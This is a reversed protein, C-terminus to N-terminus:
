QQTCTSKDEEEDDHDHNDLDIETEGEPSIKTSDQRSFYWPAAEELTWGKEDMQNELEKTANKAWCGFIMKQIFTIIVLGNTIWGIYYGPRGKVTPYNKPWNKYKGIIVNTPNGNLKESISDTTEFPVFCMSSALGFFLCFCATGLFMTVLNLKQCLPVKSWTTAAKIVRGKEEDKRDAEEVAPDNEYKLLEARKKSTTNEIFYMASFLALSQVLTAMLLSITGMGKYLNRVKDTGEQDFCMNKYGGDGINLSTCKSANLPVTYECSFPTSLEALGNCPPADCPCAENVFAGSMVCPFVLFVVPITGFLMKFVSLKLIGTLVSTPWDPGGCLIAIKDIGLGPKTLILRIAKISMSNVMVTKRVYLSGSMMGGILKQQMAVANMKIMFCIFTVIFCAPTFPVGEKVFSNVMVVGGLVYVPVGPVPPLLFMFLGVSYFIAVVAGLPLVSLQANLWSLFVMTFKTIGVNFVYYMTGIFAVKMFVDTFPWNLIARWQKHVISTLCRKKEKATVRKACPTLHVRFFQNVASLLLFAGYPIFLFMAMAKLWDSSGAKSMSALLPVKMLDGKISGWGITSIAMAALLGMGAFSFLMVLNSVQPTSGAITTAMWLGLITLGGLMGFVRIQTRPSKRKMGKAIFHTVWGFIVLMMSSVLLGIYLLYGATACDADVDNLNATYLNRYYYHDNNDCNSGVLSSKNTPQSLACDTGYLPFGPNDKMYKSIAHQFEALKSWSDISDTVNGYRSTINYYGAPFASNAEGGNNSGLTCGQGSDDSKKYDDCTFDSSGSGGDLLEWKDKRKLYFTQSWKGDDDPEWDARLTDKCIALKCNVGTDKCTLKDFYSAKVSLDKGPWVHDGGNGLNLICWVVIGTVGMFFVAPALSSLFYYADLSKWVVRNFFLIYVPVMMLFVLMPLAAYERSMLIGGAVIILGAIVLLVGRVIKFAGKWYSMDLLYMIVLLGVGGLAVFKSIGYYPTLQQIVVRGYGTSTFLVGFVFAPLLLIIYLLLARVAHKAMSEDQIAVSKMRMPRGREESKKGVSEEAFPESEMKVKLHENLEGAGESKLGSLIFVTEGM